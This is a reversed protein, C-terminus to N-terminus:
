WYRKLWLELCIVLWLWWGEETWGAQRDLERVLWEKRVIQRRVVEPERLIDFIVQETRQLLGLNMLPQFTTKDLRERVREPLLGGAADRMICRSRGPKGLQYAPLATALEVLRRDYFPATRELGFRHHLRRSSQIGQAGGRDLIVDMRVRRDSRVGRTVQVQKPWHDRLGTGAIFNPHFGPFPFPYEERHSRLRLRRVPQKLEDPLLAKIGADLVESRWAFQNRKRRLVHVADRVRLGRIMDAAWYHGGEYLLDGYDGTLLLRCGSQKAAVLVRYNLWYYADAWILDREVPWEAFDNLTWADDALLYTVDLGYQEVLPAIYVREDCSMLEDFVYSYCHFSPVLSENQMRLQAVVAAITTSDLGGSLSLGIPATSSLRCRVAETVLSLWHEAYEHDYRYRIRRHPDLEWYQWKRMSNCNVLLCHAPPCQYVEEYYTDEVNSSDCNLYEAIKSENLRATAAPHALVHLIDSAVIFVDRQLTYFLGRQGLPDVAAFMQRKDNDWVIFAFDGLLHKPCETEWRRYAHLLLQADGIHREEGHLGLANMLEVRNDLRLDASLVLHAADDAIPQDDLHDEPKIFFHQHALAVSADLWIAQGDISHDPCGDLMRQVTAADAPQGDRWLIGLVGSM